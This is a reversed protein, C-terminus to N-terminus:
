QRGLTQGGGLKQRAYTSNAEKVLLLLDKSRTKLEWSNKRGLEKQRTREASNKRGLEKQRTREASNKRGLEKQRTREASNKRGLEKRRTREASNKGSCM